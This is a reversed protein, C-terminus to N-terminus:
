PPNGQIHEHDTNTIADAFRDGIIRVAYGIGIGIGSLFILLAFAVILAASM